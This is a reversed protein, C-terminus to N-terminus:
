LNMENIIFDDDVDRDDDDHHNCHSGLILM